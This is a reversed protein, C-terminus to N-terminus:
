TTGRDLRLGTLGRVREDLRAGVKAPDLHLEEAGREILTKGSVVDLLVIAQIHSFEEPWKAM